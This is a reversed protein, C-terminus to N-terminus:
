FADVDVAVLKNTLLKDIVMENCFEAFRSGVSWEPHGQIALGRVQPFYVIEPEQFHKMQPLSAQNQEEYTRSLKASSVAIMEHDIAFPYMMQHHASSTQFVEGGDLVTINHTGQHGTVHQILKGGAFACLMQAGRCVGIMPIKNLKCYHMAKWEFVDRHSPVNGAQNYMHPKQRYYSPHIDTGGWFVVADVGAMGQKSIDQKNTFVEDFPAISDGNGIPCYGLTLEKKASM